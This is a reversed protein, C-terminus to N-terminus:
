SWRPGPIKHMTMACACVQMGTLSAYRLEIETIDDGLQGINAPITFGANGNLHVIMGKMKMRILELPLEGARACPLGLILELPLSGGARACPM